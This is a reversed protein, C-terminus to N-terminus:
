QQFKDALIYAGKRIKELVHSRDQFISVHFPRAALFDICGPLNINFMCIVRKSLFIIKWVEMM